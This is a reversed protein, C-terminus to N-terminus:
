SGLEESKSLSAKLKRLVEEPDVSELLKGNIWVEDHPRSFRAPPYDRRVGDAHETGDDPGDADDM